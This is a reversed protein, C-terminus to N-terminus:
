LIKPKVLISVRILYNDPDSVSIENLLYEEYSGGNLELNNEDIYKMIRKYLEDTYPYGYYGRTYGTVYLGEPKEDCGDPTYLYFKDPYIWDGKKIREDSYFGWAFYNLNIHPAKKECYKYFKVLEILDARGEKGKPYENQPGLLIAEKPLWRVTIENIENEDIEVAEEITNQLTVILKQVDLQEAINKNVSILKKRLICLIKKPTRNQSIEAIEKLSVGLTQLTKVFSLVMIQTHSYYRYNNEGVSVPRLIGIKDYYILTARTTRSLKALQSVSLLEYNKIAPKDM